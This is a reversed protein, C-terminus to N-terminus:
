GAPKVALLEVEFVLTENPGILAGAGREGYALEPPIYLKWKDGVKMMQLAETWGRIVGNVPFELPEGREVSSDFLRGDVLTGHYHTLVLDTPGPTDGDGPVMVEYQLGSDTTLVGERQANTVLFARGAEAPSLSEPVEIPVAPAVAPPPSPTQETTVPTTPEEAVAAAPTATTDDVEPAKPACAVLACAVLASAGFSATATIAWRAAFRRPVALADSTTPQRPRLTFTRM